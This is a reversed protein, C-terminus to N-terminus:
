FVSFPVLQIYYLNYIPVSITTPTEGTEEQRAIYCMSSTWVHTQRDHLVLLNSQIQWLILFENQITHTPHIHYFFLRTTSHLLLVVLSVRRIHRTIFSSLILIWDSLNLFGLCCFDIQPHHCYDKHLGNTHMHIINNIQVNSSVNRLMRRRRRRQRQSSQSWYPLRIM